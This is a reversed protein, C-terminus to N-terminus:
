EMLKEVYLRYAMRTISKYDRRSDYSTIRGKIYLRSCAGKRIRM